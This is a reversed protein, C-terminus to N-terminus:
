ARDDIILRFKRTRPDVPLGDVGVVEFRVNDMLKRDLIDRLSSPGGVCQVQYKASIEAIM